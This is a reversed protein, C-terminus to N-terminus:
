FLMKNLIKVSDEVCKMCVKEKLNNDNFYNKGEETSLDCGLLDKCQSTKYIKKFETDFDRVLGYTKDKAENDEKNCKGYKLGIVMNAGSVAGCTKQLGGMGGGFGCSIKLLDKESINFEDKFAILVSQACNFGNKFYDTAINEKNMINRRRISDKNYM